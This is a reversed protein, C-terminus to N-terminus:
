GVGVGVTPTPASATGANGRVPSAGGMRLAAVAASRGAIAAGDVLAGAVLPTDGPTTKARCEDSLLEIARFVLVHSVSTRSCTRTICKHTLTSLVM